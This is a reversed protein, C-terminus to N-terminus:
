NRKKDSSVWILKQDGDIIGLTGNEFLFLSCPFKGVKHTDTAWIAKNARDYIVLNADSQMILYYPGNGKGHSHSSWVLNSPVSSQSKCVVFNGDEQLRAFFSSNLSMLFSEQTIKHNAALRNLAYENSSTSPTSTPAMSKSPLSKMPPLLRLIHHKNIIPNQSLKNPQKQYIIIHFRLVFFNLFFFNLFRLILFQLLHGQDNFKVRIM